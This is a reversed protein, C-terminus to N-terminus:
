GMADWVYAGTRVGDYSIINRKEKGGKGKGEGRGDRHVFANEGGHERVAQALPLREGERLCSSISEHMCAHM